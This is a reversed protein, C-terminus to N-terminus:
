RMNQKKHQPLYTHLKLEGCFAFTYVVGGVVGGCINGDDNEVNTEGNRNIIQKAKFASEVFIMLHKSPEVLVYILM